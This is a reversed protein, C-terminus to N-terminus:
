ENLAIMFPSIKGENIASGYVLIIILVFKLCKGYFGNEVESSFV